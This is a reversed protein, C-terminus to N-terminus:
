RSRLWRYAGFGLLAGAALLMLPRTLGFGDRVFFALKGRGEASSIAAVVRPETDSTTATSTPATEGTPDSM